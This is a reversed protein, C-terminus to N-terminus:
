LAHRRRQWYRSALVWGCSAGVANALADLPDAHRGPILAGQLVELLGGYLMLVPLLLKRWRDNLPLARALIAFLFYAGFHAVKDNYTIVPLDTGPLLSAGTLVAAYGGFLLWRLGM